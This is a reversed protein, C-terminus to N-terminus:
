RAVVDSGGQRLASKMASEVSTVDCENYWSADNTYDTGALAFSFRTTAYADNLVAISDTIARSPLQGTSGDHIVHWYVDITVPADAMMFGQDAARQIEATVEAIHEPSPNDTGCGRQFLHGDEEPVNPDTRVEDTCAALLTLAAAASTAALTRFRM